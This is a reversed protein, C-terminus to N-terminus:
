LNSEIAEFLSDRHILALAESDLRTVYSVTGCFIGGPRLLREIEAFVNTQGGATLHEIASTSVVVDLSEDDIGDIGEELETLVQRINGRRGGDGMRDVVLVRDAFRVLRNPLESDVGGGGIDALASVQPLSRVHEEIWRYAWKRTGQGAVGLGEAEEHTGWVLTRAVPM